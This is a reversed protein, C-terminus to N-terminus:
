PRHEWAPAGPNPHRCVHQVADGVRITIAEATLALVQSGILFFAAGRRDLRNIPADADLGFLQGATWGLSAAKSGWQDLFRGAANIMALWTAAEVGPPIPRAELKAFGEAWERPVQAGEQIVAAREELDFPSPNALVASVALVGKGPGPQRSEDTKATKAPPGWPADPYAEAIISLALEGWRSM